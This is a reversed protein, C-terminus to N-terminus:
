VDLSLQQPLQRFSKRHYPSLGYKQIAARHQSTPYGKNRDWHYMPFEEHLKLMLEDRHSKALISAAAISMYKGDGKVFCKHEVDPYPDFRNGDVLILSPTRGLSGLARHMALFSARLINIRDIEVPPVHCVSFCLAEKELLHRLFERKPASLQKSDNLIGNSFSEPLMIAAATVPG